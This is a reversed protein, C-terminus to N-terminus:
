LALDALKDGLADPAPPGPQTLPRFPLHTSGVHGVGRLRAAHPWVDIHGYANTGPPCELVSALVRHHLGADDVHHGDRHTHGALTAVVCRADRLVELVEEYNWLLCVAACAEPHLPLHGCVFVREGAAAAAALQARLWALQAASVGGGFAVFRRQLGQLGEPSNKNANPNHEALLAVAAERHPHGEPWGLVSVDYSDLMVVRFGPHPSFTYYSEGEDGSPIGLRANLTARPLNYLCHNGLCHHTRCPLQEFADLVRRLAAESEEQPAARSGEAERARAGSVPSRAKPCFGDLIDGLHMACALERPRWDAVAESRPLRAHPPM